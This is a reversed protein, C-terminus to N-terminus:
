GKGKTNRTREADAARREALNHEHQAKKGAERATKSGDSFQSLGGKKQPGRTERELQREEREMKRAIWADENKQVEDQVFLTAEDFIRALAMGDFRATAKANEVTLAPQIFRSVIGEQDARRAGISINYRPRGLALKSVQVVLGSAEDVFAKVITWEVRPKQENM